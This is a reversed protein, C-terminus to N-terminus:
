YCMGLKVTELALVIELNFSKITMSAPVNLYQSVAIRMTSFNVTPAGVDLWVNKAVSSTVHCIEVRDPALCAASWSCKERM